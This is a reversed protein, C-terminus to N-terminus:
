EFLSRQVVRVDDDRNWLLSTVEHDAVLDHGIARDRRASTSVLRGRAVHAHKLFVRIVIGIEVAVKYISRTTYHAGSDTGVDIRSRAARVEGARRHFPEQTQGFFAHAHVDPNQGPVGSRM